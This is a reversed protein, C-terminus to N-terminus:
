VGIRDLPTVPRPFELGLRSHAGRGRAPAPGSQCFSDGPTYDSVRSQPDREGCQRITEPWQTPRCESRATGIPRLDTTPLLPFPGTRDGGYEDNAPSRGRRLARTLVHPPIFMGGRCSGVAYPCATGAAVSAPKHSGANTRPRFGFSTQSLPRSPRHLETDIPM